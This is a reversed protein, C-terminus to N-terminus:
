LFLKAFAIIVGAFAVGLTFPHWRSEMLIKTIEAHMKECETRMKECETFMKSIEADIRKSM